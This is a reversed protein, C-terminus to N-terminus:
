TVLKLIVETVVKIELEPDLAWIMNNNNFSSSMNNNSLEPDM